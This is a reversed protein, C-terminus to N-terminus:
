LGTVTIGTEYGPRRSKILNYHMQSYISSSKKEDKSYIKLNAIIL